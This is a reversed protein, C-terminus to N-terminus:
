LISNSPNISAAARSASTRGSYAAGVRMLPQEFYRYSVVGVVVTAALALFTVWPNKIFESSTALQQWLYLTFSIKGLYTITPNLFMARVSPYKTPTSLVMACILAPLVLVNVVLGLGRPFHIVCGLLYTALALTLWAPLSISAAVPAIEDWYMASICGMLMYGFTGIALALADRGLYIALLAACILVITLSLVARRGGRASSIVFVLPFLLYFQEEYALSWTHGLFWGCERLDFNCLFLGARAFQGPTVAILNFVTLLALALMYLLLPPVIRLFRRVYFAKMSIAGHLKAEALLARCIVFGSICFFIKVGLLGMPQARGMIIWPLHELYWPNSFTLVHFVMVMVMAVAIFRWADIHAIRTVSM